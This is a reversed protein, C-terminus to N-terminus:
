LTKVLKGFNTLGRSDPLSLDLIIIDFTKVKLLQMANSFYDRVQVTHKNGFIKRFQIEAFRADEPVDEILLIKIDKEMMKM